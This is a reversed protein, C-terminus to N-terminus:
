NAVKVTAHRIVRDGLKYGRQFVEAIVNEPLDADDVHMVGNHLNPDFAEGKEGFSEVGMGTLIELLQRVTMEIGKRYSDPDSDAAAAREFNDLVPLIKALTEARVDNYLADKEKQSRKRYNDYEALTRLWKENADAAQKRAEELAGDNEEKAPAADQADQAAAPEAEPAAATEKATEEATEKAPAPEAEPSANKKKKEAM